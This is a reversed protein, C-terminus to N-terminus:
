ITKQLRQEIKELEWFMKKDTSVVVKHNPYMKELDSKVTKEISKLRFRDFNDVKIAVFLEKDTNVAKVDSIEEKTIIKEKARNAVSQGIPKSTHVQSIGLHNNDEDLQNQNDNCGTGFGIVALISLFIKIKTIKDKM